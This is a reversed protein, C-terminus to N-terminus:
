MKKVYAFAPYERFYAKSTACMWAEMLPRGPCNTVHYKASLNYSALRVFEVYGPMDLREPSFRIDVQMQRDEGALVDLVLNTTGCAMLKGIDSSLDEEFYRKFSKNVPLPRINSIIWLKGIEKYMSLTFNRTTTSKKTNQM